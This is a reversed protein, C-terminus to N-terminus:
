FEIRKSVSHDDNDPWCRLGLECFGLVSGAFRETDNCSGSILLQLCQVLRTGCNRGHHPERLVPTGLRLVLVYRHDILMFALFNMHSQTTGPIFFLPLHWVAWIVGLVLNGLWPGLRDEMKDM